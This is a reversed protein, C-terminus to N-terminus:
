RIRLARRHRDPSVYRTHYQAWDEPNAQYVPDEELGAPPTAYDATQHSPLPLVTTSFTTNLDGDKVWGDGLLLFERVWGERPPAADEFRLVMEDGANMIVYRDDVEALLEQVDGFRTHFGVLDQWVPTTAELVEYDPIEPSVSDAETVRSFGRYRLDASITRLTQRRVLDSSPVGWQLQDWYVELNTRLRFVRAEGPAWLGALDLIVTKEKGSPFGLDPRVLRWGGSGDPVELQLSTPPPTTGQGIAVNISSDTPRVWGFAALQVADPAELPLHIEVAHMEAIGQYAGREFGAVYRGDRDAALEDVRTGSADFVAEFPMLEEFLHVRDDPPPFAFREDVRAEAGAPRDVAVLAVQDFFHTEWLEATIRVEYVGDRAVLADSPIRIWDSTTAIGATEQANIRLGLPSRWLFDTLFRFREGDHTFVWPCSGKLRQEALVTEDSLLDFEIQVDGNPWTIRAVETLLNDGLGFHLVQGTIPLKQYLLGSRLEVDGGIAFTNIRRDGQASAARPRIRKWQYGAEGQPFYVVAQGAERGVLEPPGEETLPAVDDLSFGTLHLGTSRLRDDEGLFATVGGAHSVVWDLAGNNDLETLRLAHVNDPVGASGGAGIVLDVGLFGDNKLRYRLARGDEIVALEFVGDRDADELAIGQIREAIVVPEAWRGNRLNEHFTAQGTGTVTVVDPDADGDLDAWVGDVVGAAPLRRALEFTGDGLNRLIATDAGPSGVVLDLDGEMDFDVAMVFSAPELPPIAGPREAFGEESQFLVRVGFPGAVMLDSLYDQDLDQVSSSLVSAAGSLEILRGDPLHIGRDDALIISPLPDAGLHIARSWAWDSADVPIESRELSITVDAPAASARVPELTSPVSIPDAVLEPPAQLADLDERYWAARVLVNQLRDLSTSLGDQGAAAVTQLAQLLLAPDPHPPFTDPAHTAWARTQDEMGTTVNARALELALATNGPALSRASQLLDRAETGGRLKALAYISRLDDNAALLVEARASDGSALFVFATLYRVDPPANDTGLAREAAVVASEIEGQRLALLSLNAWAASETPVIETVRELRARGRLDDGIQMAGVGSYFAGSAELYAESGPEPVDPGACGSFAILLLAAPLQRISM